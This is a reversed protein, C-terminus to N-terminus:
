RKFLRDLVAGPITQGISDDVELGHKLDYSSEYWWRDRQRDDFDPDTPEAITRASTPAVVPQAANERPAPPVRHRFQLTAV